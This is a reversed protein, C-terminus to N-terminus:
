NENLNLFISVRAGGTQESNELVINGGHQKAVSDAFYLGMGYHSNATRSTDDMAFLENGQKLMKPSFGSGTDEIQLKLFDNDVSVKLKVIGDELTHEVANQIVNMVARELMESSGFYTEITDRIEIEFKVKSQRCLMTGQKEIEMFFESLNFDKFHYQYKVSLMTMETLIQLYRSMRNMGEVASALLESQEADLKTEELLDLNGLTVTMPTKFDHALAAIQEKQQQEMKWQEELSNKLSDKMNSFSLLVDEFEKVNSHGIEFDLNQASIETTAEFLPNLQVRLEKSFRRTLIICIAICNMGMVIYLLHEPSPLHENLWDNTFQSGIYYQLIVYENERTIFKYQKPPNNNVKGSVVYETANKLDAEDLTTELVKYNKDLRLFKIGAPLEVESLEPATEIIPTIYEVGQASYDAYTAYGLNITLLMIIFPIIIAGFLGLILMLLFKWFSARLSSMKKMGM